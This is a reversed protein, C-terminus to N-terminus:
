QGEKKPNRLAPPVLPVMKVEAADFFFHEPARQVSQAHREDERTAVPEFHRLIGTVKVTQGRRFHAYLDNEKAAGSEKVRYIYAGWNNFALWFGPKGDSLIGVVTIKQGVKPMMERKFKAFAPSDSQAAAAVVCASLVLAATIRNITSGTKLLAASARAVFKPSSCSQNM